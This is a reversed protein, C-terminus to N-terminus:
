TEYRIAESKAGRFVFGLNQPYWKKRNGGHFYVYQTAYVGKQNSLISVITNEQQTVDRERREIGARGSLTGQCFLVGGAGGQWPPLFVLGGTIHSFGDIHKLNSM